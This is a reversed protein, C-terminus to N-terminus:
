LVTWGKATAITKDCGAYGPNNRFEITGSVTITPLRTFIRDIEATEFSCYRFSLGLTGGFLNDRQMADWDCEFSSLPAPMTSTGINMYVNYFKLLPQWFSTLNKTRVFTLRACYNMSGGTIETIETLLIDDQLYGFLSTTSVYIDIYATEPLTIKKLMYCAQFMTSTWTGRMYATTPYKVENLKPNYAVLWDFVCGTAPNGVNGGMLFKELNNGGYGFSVLTEVAPLDANWEFYEIVHNNYLLNTALALKPLNTPLANITPSIIKPGGGSFLSSFITCEPLSTPFQIVRLKVNNIFGSTLATLANMSSPLYCEKLESCNAAFSILTQLSDCACYFKIYTLLNCRTGFASALNEINPTFFHAEKLPWGNVAYGSETMNAFSLLSNTSVTPTIIVKFLYYGNPHLSGTSPIFDLNLVTNHPTDFTSILNDAM